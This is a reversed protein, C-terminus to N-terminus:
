RLGKVRVGMGKRMRVWEGVGLLWRTLRSRRVRERSYGLGEYLRLAAENQASVDLVLAGKRWSRAVTEAELMIARGVGRRRFEGAVAVDSVYVEDRGFPQELLSLYVMARLGGWVGLEEVLIATASPFPPDPQGRRRLALTGAVEGGVQAVYLGPLGRDAELELTRAIVREARDLRGRFAAKFKSYFGEVLIAAVRELDSPRAPRITIQESM